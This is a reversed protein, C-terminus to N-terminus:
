RHMMSSPVDVQIMELDMHFFSPEGSSMGDAM